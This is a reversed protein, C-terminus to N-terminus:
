LGASLKRLVKELTPNEVVISAKKYINRRKMELAELRKKLEQPTESVLLPRDKKSSLREVIENISVDLFITLGSANMTDIGNYFCPAGGGTAMVFSEDSSSREILTQSEIQRFADEGLKSFIESVVMGESDEIETDLDTFPVNLKQALQKGLTSKGSGPMGILFIKM